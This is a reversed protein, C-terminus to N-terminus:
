VLSRPYRQKIIDLMSQQGIHVIAAKGNRKFGM